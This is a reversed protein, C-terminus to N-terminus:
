SAEKIAVILQIISHSLSQTVSHNLAKIEIIHIM